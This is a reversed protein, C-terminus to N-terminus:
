HQWYTSASKLESDRGKAFESLLKFPPARHQSGSHLGAQTMLKFTKMCYFVEKDEHHLGSHSIVYIEM